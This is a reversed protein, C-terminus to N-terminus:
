DFYFVVVTCKAMVCIRRALVYRHGSCSRHGCGSLIDRRVPRLRRAARRGGVGKVGDRHILKM